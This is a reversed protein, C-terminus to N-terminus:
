GVSPSAYLVARVALLALLVANFVSLAPVWAALRHQWRRAAFQGAIGVVLLTPVTGLGFAAMGLAGAAASQAAGTVALATYLFGCPLFGLAVGLGYQNHRTMHTLRAVARNWGKLPIRISSSVGHLLFLAAGALLFVPAAWRPLLAGSGFGVLAGLLAYTTLRGLHYPLLAGAQVRQWECLRVAPLTAARDSIQGLVFGGCMAGCHVPAGILGAMFLALVTGQSVPLAGCWATLLNLTNSVPFYM